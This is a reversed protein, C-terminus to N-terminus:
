KLNAWTFASKQSCKLNVKLPYINEMIKVIEDIAHLKDERVEFILEDHIQLLLLLDDNEKFNYISDIKQMALKMLDAASGQFIANIGERIYTAEDRKNINNFNFRRKHGLLTTAEGTRLIEEKTTELYDKVTPFLEFYNKIYIKADNVSIGVTQSLANAGMGYILGFNIGKAIGRKSKAESAGFLRTATELHIDRDEKFANLFDLDGSFHALLRLEIQSYDISVLLYGDRAIFGNRVRNGFDSKTPINQLNPYRSSLRGTNTGIQLFTTHIRSKADKRGLIILPDIYTTKIKTLERYELILPVVEHQDALIKLNSSSTSLFSKNKTGSGLLKLDEFLFDSLQKPSNMNFPTSAFSLIKDQIYSLRTELESHFGSFFKLDIKIGIFEMKSLIKCIDNEITLLKQDMKDKLNQYIETIQSLNNTALSIIEEQSVELPKLRTKLVPMPSLILNADSNNLYSFLVIDDFNINRLDTKPNLKLAKIFFLKANFLILKKDLLAEFLFYLDDNALLCNAEEVYAIYVKDLIKLSIIKLKNTDILMKAEMLDRIEEDFYLMLAIAERTSNVIEIMEKLSIIASTIDTNKNANQLAKTSNADLKKLVNNLDYEYLDNLINLLPNKDALTAASFDFDDLLDRDLRVLERSLYADDKGEIMKQANSKGIINVFTAFDESAKYISELNHYLNILKSAGNQGIGKVGKINDVSDGVIAQFDVFDEPLVGFKDFCANDKIIEKKVPDFLFVDDKILQYLDKDTSIIQCILGEQTARKALSAIIDDAEYGEKKISLLGMKEIWPIAIELQMKLEIPPEKRNSKYEAYLEKRKLNGGELAFVLYDPKKLYIQNIFNALGYLISTPFNDKNTLNPTAHFVRFFFSFTDVVILKKQAEQM